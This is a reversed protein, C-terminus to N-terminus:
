KKLLDTTLVIRTRNHTKFPLTHTTILAKAKAKEALILMQADQPTIGLKGALEDSRRLENENLDIKELKGPIKEEYKKLTAYTVYIKKYRNIAGEELLQNVAEDDAVINSRSSKLIVAIFILALLPLLYSSARTIFPVFTSSSQLNDEAPIYGSKIAYISYKGEEGPTFRFTGNEDAIGRIIKNGPTIFKLLASVPSGEDDHVGVNVEDGVVVEPPVKIVLPPFKHLELCSICDAGGCDINEEDADKIGDVCHCARCTGGCDVDTEDQNQLGDFCTPCKPCPGGCDVGSEGQNKVGDDCTPGESCDVVPLTISVPLYDQKTANLQYIGKIIPYFTISGNKDTDGEKFVKNRFTIIVHAQTLPQKTKNDYVVAVVKENICSKDIPIFGLYAQTKIGLTESGPMRVDVQMASLASVKENNTTFTANGRYIDRRTKQPALVSYRVTTKHLPQITFSSGWQINESPIIDSADRETTLDGTTIGTITIPVKAYSRVDIEGDASNGAFVTLSTDEAKLCAPCNGGCDTLTENGDLVNNDCAAEYVTFNATEETFLGGADMM